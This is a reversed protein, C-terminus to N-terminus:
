TIKSSLEFNYSLAEKAKIANALQDMSPPLKLINDEM